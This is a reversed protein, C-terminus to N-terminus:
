GQGFIIKRIYIYPINSEKLTNVVESTKGLGPSGFVVLSNSVKFAVQMTYYRITEFIDIDESFIKKDVTMSGLQVDETPATKIIVDDVNENLEFDGNIFDIIDDM